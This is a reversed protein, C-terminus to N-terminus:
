VLDIGVRNVLIDYNDYVDKNKRKFDDIKEEYDRVIDEM